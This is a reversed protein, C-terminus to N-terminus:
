LCIVLSKQVCCLNKKIEIMIDLLRIYKSIEINESKFFICLETSYASFEFHLCEMEYVFVPM